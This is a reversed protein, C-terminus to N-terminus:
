HQVDVVSEVNMAGPAQVAPFVTNHDVEGRQILARKREADEIYRNDYFTGGYFIQKERKPKHIVNVSRVCTVVFNHEFTQLFSIIIVVRM